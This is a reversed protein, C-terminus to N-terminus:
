MMASRAPAYNVRGLTSPMLSSAPISKAASGSTVACGPFAIPEPLDIPRGFVMTSGIEAPGKIAATGIQRGGWLYRAFDLSCAPARDGAAV